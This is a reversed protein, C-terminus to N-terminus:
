WLWACSPQVRHLRGLTDFTVCRLPMSSKSLFRCYVVTPWRTGPTGYAMIDSGGRGSWSEFSNDIPVAEWKPCAEWESIQNTAWNNLQYIWERIDTIPDSLGPVIGISWATSHEDAQPVQWAIWDFSAKDM